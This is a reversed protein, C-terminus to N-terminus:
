SEDKEIYMTLLKISLSSYQCKVNKILRIDFDSRIKKEIKTHIKNKQILIGLRKTVKAFSLATIMVKQKEM